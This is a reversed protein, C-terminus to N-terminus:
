RDRRSSKTLLVKKLIEKPVNLVLSEVQKIEKSTMDDWHVGIVVVVNKRLLTALQESIRKALLDEKHGLFTLNSSTASWKRPDKLSPRPTAAGIAGIHPKTGGWISVLLDEGLHQIYSYIQFRGRSIRVEFRKM